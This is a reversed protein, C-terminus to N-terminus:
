PLQKVGHFVHSDLLSAQNCNDLEREIRGIREELNEIRTRLSNVAQKNKAFKPNFELTVSDYVKSVILETAEKLSRADNFKETM